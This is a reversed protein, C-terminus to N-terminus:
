MPTSIGLHTTKHPDRPDRKVNWPTTSNIYKNGEVGEGEWLCVQPAAEFVRFKKTLHEDLELIAAM